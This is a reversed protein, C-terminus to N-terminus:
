LMCIHTKIARCSGITNFCAYISKKLGIVGSLETHVGSPEWYAGQMHSHAEIAGIPERHSSPEWYNSRQCIYPEEQRRKAGDQESIGQKRQKDRKHIWGITYLPSTIKHSPKWWTCCMCWLALVYMYLIGGEFRLLAKKLPQDHM